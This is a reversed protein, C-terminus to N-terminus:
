GSALREDLRPAPLRQSARILPLLARHEPAKSDEYAGPQVHIVFGQAIWWRHLEAARDRDAYVSEDGVRTAYVSADGVRAVM